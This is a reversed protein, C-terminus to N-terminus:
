DERSINIEDMTNKIEWIKTKVTLLKVKKKMGERDRSLMNPREELKKFIHLVMYYSKWHGIMQTMGPNTWSQNKEENYIMNAQKKIYM